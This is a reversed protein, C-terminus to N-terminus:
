SRVTVGGVGVPHIGSDSKTFYRSSQQSILYINLLSSNPFCNEKANKLRILYRLPNRIDAKCNNSFFIIFYM